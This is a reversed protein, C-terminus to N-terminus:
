TSWKEGYIRIIKKKVNSIKLWFFFTSSKEFKM